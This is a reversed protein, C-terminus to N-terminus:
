PCTGRGAAGTAANFVHNARGDWFNNRYYVAGITTPAQRGTVRRTDLFPAAHDPACLDAAQHPDSDISKFTGGVIGQSGVIDDVSFSGGGFLVGPGSVV